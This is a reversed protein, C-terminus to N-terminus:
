CASRMAASSAGTRASRAPSVTGSSLASPLTVASSTGEGASRGKKRLECISPKATRAASTAVTGTASSTLPSMGAPCVIGVTRTGPVAIRMM